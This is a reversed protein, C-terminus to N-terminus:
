GRVRYMSYARVSTCVILEKLGLATSWVMMTTSWDGDRAIGDSFNFIRNKIEGQFSVISSQFTERGECSVERQHSAKMRCCHWM